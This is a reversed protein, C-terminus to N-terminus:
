AEPGREADFLDPPLAGEIKLLRRKAATGGPASFGTMAGDAGVVRHCPILIPLPNRGLAQGVRQALAPDGLRRAIEGYTRTEGPMIARTEAYVRCDFQSLNSLDLKADAFDHKEGVFLAAIGAMIAAIEVPAAAETAQPAYKLLQARVAQEESAPFAAAVIGNPGWALGAKGFATEFMAYHATV